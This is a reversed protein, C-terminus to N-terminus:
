ILTTQKISLPRAILTVGHPISESPEEPNASGVSHGTSTKVSITLVETLFPLLNAPILGFLWRHKVNFRTWGM